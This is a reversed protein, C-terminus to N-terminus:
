FNLTTPHYKNSLVYKYNILQKTVSIPIAASLTLGFIKKLRQNLIYMYTKHFSGIKPVM